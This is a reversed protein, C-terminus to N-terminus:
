LGKGAKCDGQVDLKVTMGALAHVEQRGGQNPFPALLQWSSVVKNGGGGKGKKEEWHGAERSAIITPFGNLVRPNSSITPM